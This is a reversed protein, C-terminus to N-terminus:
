PCQAAGPRCLDGFLNVGPGAPLSERVVTRFAGGQLAAALPGDASLDGLDFLRIGGTAALAAWVRGDPAATFSGKNSGIPPTFGLPTRRVAGGAPDYDLLMAEGSSRSVLALMRVQGASPLVVHGADLLTAGPDAPDLAITRAASPKRVQRTRVDRLLFPGSPAEATDYRFLATALPASGGAGAHIALGRSTHSVQLIPMGSANSPVGELRAQGGDATRLAVDARDPHRTTVILTGGASDLTTQAPAATAAATVLALVLATRKMADEM